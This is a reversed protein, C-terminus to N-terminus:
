TPRRSNGRLAKVAALLIVAGLLAVLFSYANFGTIPARGLANMIFGGIVAGLSGVIVDGLLGQESNTRMINSAVWGAFAGLIIWLIIGM